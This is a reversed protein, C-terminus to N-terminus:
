YLAPAVGGTVSPFVDYQAPLYSSPTFAITPWKSSPCLQVSKAWLQHCPVLSVNNKWVKSWPLINKFFNLNHLEGKALGHQDLLPAQVGEQGKGGEGGAWVRSVPPSLHDPTKVQWQWLPWVLWGPRRWLVELSPFIYFVIKLNGSCRKSCM